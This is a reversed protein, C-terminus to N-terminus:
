EECSSIEEYPVVRIEKDDDIEVMIKAERKLVNVSIINGVINETKLLVKEGVKPAEKNLEEYVNHEYALCCMLRGCHGSIQNPNLVINQDKLMKISVPKFDSLFKSCCLSRGCSGIGGIKKTADRYGIQRLEIRIKFKSALVKVLDRFDVRDEAVFTFLLKKRDFTYSAGIIKMDIEMDAIIKKCEYFASDSMLKTENNYEIDEENAVRLVCKLEEEDINDIEKPASVAYGLEVGRATDVIVADNRFIKNGNPKFYYIKGAKEFRVGVVSVM